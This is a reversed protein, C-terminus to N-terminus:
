SMSGGPGREIYIPIVLSKQKFKFYTAWFTAMYTTQMTVRFTVKFIAGLRTKKYYELVNCFLSEM